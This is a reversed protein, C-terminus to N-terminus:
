PGSRRCGGLPLSQSVLYQAGGHQLREGHQDVFLPSCPGLKSRPCHAKRTSLFHNVARSRGEIPVFRIKSGKGTVKLRCKGERGDTSGLDLGLLESLRLGTLPATAIFALDREPWPNRAHRENGAM